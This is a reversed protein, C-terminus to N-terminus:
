EECKYNCKLRLKATGCEASDASIFDCDRLDINGTVVGTDERVFRACEAEKEEETYFSFDWDNLCPGNLVVDLYKDEKFRFIYDTNEEKKDQLSKYRLWLILVAIIFVVIIVLVAQGFTMEKRPKNMEEM